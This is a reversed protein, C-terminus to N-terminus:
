SKQTKELREKLTTALTLPIKGEKAIREATAKKLDELSGFKSLLISSRKPGIGPISELTSLTVDKKRLRQNFGTAFRHSEDRVRQLIRLPMSGEMLLIPESKEPLFIEEKKKALGAVPIHSLGLLTLIDKAASLQGKGGDILVLDPKPLDENSVRSYRRATVERIAEFDDIKGELSKIKFIRYNKKDPEGEWFSVMSAVPHKGSLQSIDFGEIRYPPAPLNLLQQLEKLAELTTKKAMRKIMDERGNNEALALITKDRDSVPVLIEVRKGKERKFFDSLLQKERIFPLYLREPTTATEYYQILFQLLAEERTAYFESRITEKDSLKGERMKFVTFNCLNQNINLAIYDRTDMDFDQVLQRTKIVGLAQLSDRIKAAREFDLVQISEEMEKKLREALDERTGTLLERIADVNKNYEAPTTKGCCPALCQGLHYYLCPSSRKKLSGRCKRLPYIKQILELYLDLMKVDTYPGYYESGDQIIKRTKFIRPFDERTIRIVPYSKGDKLSINYRPAWQKILNNELILAEYENDTLIHEISAIRKVLLSTKIDRKKNFYSSVRHRLSKAKGVYIVTGSSDKMIYVGPTEPFGKVQELLNNDM